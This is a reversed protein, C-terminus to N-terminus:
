WDDNEDEDKPKAKPKAKPKEEPEDEEEDIEEEPEEEEDYGDDDEEEEVRKGFENIGLKKLARESLEDAILTRGEFIEGDDNADIFTQLMTGAADEDDIESAFEDKLSCFHKIESVTFWRYVNVYNDDKKFKKLSKKKPNAIKYKETDKICQNVYKQEDEDDQESALQSNEKKSSICLKVKEDILDTFVTYEATVEKGYDMFTVEAEETNSYLAAMLNKADAYLGLVKVLSKIKSVGFHQKKRKQYTYFPKGDKGRMMFRERHEKGDKTAFDIEIFEVKSKDITIRKAMTIKATVVGYGQIQNSDNGGYVSEDEEEIDDDEDELWAASLGTEEEVKGTGNENKNEAMTNEEQKLLDIILSNKGCKPCVGWTDGDNELDTFLSLDSTENCRMCEFPFDMIDRKTKNREILMDHQINFDRNFTLSQELSTNRKFTM